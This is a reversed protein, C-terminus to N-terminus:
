TYSLSPAYAVFEEATFSIGGTNLQDISQDLKRLFSDNQDRISITIDLDKRDKVLERIKKLLRGNLEKPKVKIVAQM